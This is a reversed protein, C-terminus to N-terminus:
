DLVRHTPKPYGPKFAATNKVIIIVDAKKKWEEICDLISRKLYEPKTQVRANIIMDIKGSVSVIMDTSFSPQNGATFSIKKQQIGDNILFKLHGIPLSQANIKAYIKNILAIGANFANKDQTYIEIEADLWALEAEGDGYIDYDLELSKRAQPKFETLAKLWQKINKQEFSNQFLIKKLPYRQAVLQRIGELQIINLLDIKNVILIDAEELQKKYIYSVSDVFIRSGQIMTPLLHADVFVSIVIEVNERYKELPKIVTAVIDTCSGVSEAFIIDAHDIKQLVDIFGDLKEYNCCFCGETVEMVPVNASKIFKTDALQAGQDNTIVGVKTGEKLLEICANRIATTKGSGLFGGILFLKM